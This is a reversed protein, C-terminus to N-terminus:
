ESGGDSEEEEIFMMREPTDYCMQALLGLCISLLAPVVLVPWLLVDHALMAATFVATMMSLSTLVSGALGAFVGTPHMTLMLTVGTIKRLLAV